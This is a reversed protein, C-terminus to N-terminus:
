MEVLIEVTGAIGAVVGFAFLALQPWSNRLTVAEPRLRLYFACPLLYRCFVCCNAQPPVARLTRVVRVYAVLVASTAGTLGFVVELQPLALAIVLTILYRARVHGPSFPALVFTSAGVLM